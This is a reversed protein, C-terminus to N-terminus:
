RTELAKTRVGTATAQGSIRIGRTRKKRHRSLGKEEGSIHCVRSGKLKKALLSRNGGGTKDRMAHRSVGMADCIRCGSRQRSCPFCSSAKPPLRPSSSHTMRSCTHPSVVSALCTSVVIAFSGSQCVRAFNSLKMTSTISNNM